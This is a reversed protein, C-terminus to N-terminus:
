LLKVGPEKLELVTGSGLFPMILVLIAQGTNFCCIDQASQASILIASKRHAVM